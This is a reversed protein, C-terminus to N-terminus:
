ITKYYDLTPFAKNFQIKIYRETIFSLNKQCEESIKFYFIKEFESLCIYRMTHLMTEDVPMSRYSEYENLCNKCCLRGDYLNFYMVEDTPMYCSHCAILNPMLGIECMIRMEFVIKMQETDRSGVNLFHLTNLFLRLVEGAPEEPPTTFRLIDSLYAALALKKVDLRINYFTNLTESSNLVYGSNTKNLCLKSFTLLQTAACNKSTIKRGGRVLAEIIGMDETLIEVYKDNEKVPRERIIIGKTTILM